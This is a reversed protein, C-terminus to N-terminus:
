QFQGIYLLGELNPIIKFNPILNRRYKFQKSLKKLKSKFIKFHHSINIMTM